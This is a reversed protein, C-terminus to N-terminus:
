RRGGSAAGGARCRWRWRWCSWCRSGPWAPASWRSTEAACGPRRGAGTRRPCRRCRWRTASPGSPRHDGRVPQHDRARVASRGARAGGHDGAAEGHGCQGAPGARRAGSRRHGGRLRVRHGYRQGGDHGRGRQLTVVDAGPAVVDVYRGVQSKPWRLGSEAIAGVGIVGDYAAPYSTPGGGPADGLDGAAAVIVVGDRLADSVAARLEPADTYSVVPAAIVDAGREVAARVGRALVAPAAVPDGGDADVVRIPVISVNPALGVFGVGGTEWAAIVGAVQTGTGLCDNDARGGGAVADFGAGIEGRLQPHGADVGSDLVAVTVGGGRSFSWVQQPGLLQQAWPVAAVPEGPEACQQAAAAGTTTPTPAALWAAALCAVVTTRTVARRM